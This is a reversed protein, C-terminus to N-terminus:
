HGRALLEALLIAREGEPIHKLLLVGYASSFNGSAITFLEGGAADKVKIKGSDASRKVEGLETESPDVVKVREQEKRKLSFARENEENDSVKIKEEHVKVKWLLKGDPSKLKFAGDGSKVELLPSGDDRRYYRKDGKLKGVAHQGFARVEVEDGRIDVNLAEGGAAPTIVTQGSAPQLAASAQQTPLPPPSALTAEKSQCALLLAGLALSLHLCHRTM